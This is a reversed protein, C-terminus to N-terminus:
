YVKILYVTVKKVLGRIRRWRQRTPVPKPRQIGCAPVTCEEMDPHRDVPQWIPTHREPIFHKADAM